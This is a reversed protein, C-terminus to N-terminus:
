ESLLEAVTLVNQGLSAIHRGLDNDVYALIIAHQRVAGIMAQVLTSKDDCSNQPM